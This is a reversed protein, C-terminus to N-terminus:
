KAAPKSDFGSELQLMLLNVKKELPALRSRKTEKARAFHAQADAIQTRFAFKDEELTENMNKLFMADDSVKKHKKKLTM